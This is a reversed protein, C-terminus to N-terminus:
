QVEVSKEGQRWVANFAHVNIRCLRQSTILLSTTFIHFMEKLKETNGARESEERM